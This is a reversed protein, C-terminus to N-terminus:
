LVSNEYANVLFPQTFGSVFIRYYPTARTPLNNHYVIDMKTIFRPEEMKDGFILRLSDLVSMLAEDASCIDRRMGVFSVPKHYKMEVWAIGHETIYIDVYNSNVTYGKFNDRYQFLLGDDTEIPTQNEATFNGGTKKIKQILERCLSENSESSLPALEGAGRNRYIVDPGEIILTETENRYIVRNRETSRVATEPSRMFIGPLADDDYEAQQMEIQRMPSYNSLIDVYCIVNNSRLMSTIAMEQNTTLRYTNNNNYIFIFLFINLLCLSIVILRKTKEWDM